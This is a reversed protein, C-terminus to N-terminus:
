RGTGPRPEAFLRRRMWWGGLLNNVVMAAVVAELVGAPTRAFGLVAVLLGLALGGQPL